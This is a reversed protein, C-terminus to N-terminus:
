VTKQFILRILTFNLFTYIARQYRHFTSRSISIRQIFKLISPAKKDERLFLHISPLHNSFTGLFAVNYDIYRLRLFQSVHTRFTCIFLGSQWRWDDKTQFFRQLINLLILIHFNSRALYPQSFNDQIFSFTFSHSLLLILRFKHPCSFYHVKAGECNPLLYKTIM